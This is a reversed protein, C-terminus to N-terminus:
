SPNGNETAESPEKKANNRLLAVRKQQYESKCKRCKNQLGSVEKRSRSFAMIDQVFGCTRCLKRSPVLAEVAADVRVIEAKVYAELSPINARKLDATLRTKLEHVAWVVLEHDAQTLRRPM